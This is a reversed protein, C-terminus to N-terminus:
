INKISENAELFRNSVGGLVRGFRGLMGGFIRGVEWFCIRASLARPTNLLLLHLDIFELADHRSGIHRRMAM